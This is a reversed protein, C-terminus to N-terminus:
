VLQQQKANLDNGIQECQSSKDSLERAKDGVQANVNNLQQL